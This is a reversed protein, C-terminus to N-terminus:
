TELVLDERFERNLGHQAYGFPNCIFRTGDIVTDTSDHTHGYIWLRPTTCTEYPVAGVFFRNLPSSKWQPKSLIEHPVHHTV